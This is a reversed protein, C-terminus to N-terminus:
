AEDTAPLVQMFPHIEVTEFVGGRTYPDADAMARAEDESDLEVVILSGAGDSLPGALKIRGQRDAVDLHALHDPRLKPRLEKAQPGDRGIIVFLM